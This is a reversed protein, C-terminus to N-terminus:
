EEAREGGDFGADVDGQSILLQNAYALGGYNLPM